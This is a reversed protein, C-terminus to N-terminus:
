QTDQIAKDALAFITDANPKQKAAERRILGMAERLKDTKGEYTM